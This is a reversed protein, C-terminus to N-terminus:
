DITPQTLHSRQVEAESVASGRVLETIVLAFGWAVASGMALSYGLAEAAQLPGGTLLGTFAGVIWAGIAASLWVSKRVPVRNERRSMQLARATGLICGIAIAYGYLQSTGGSHIPVYLCFLALIAGGLLNDLRKAPMTM